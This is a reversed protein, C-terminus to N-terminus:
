AGPPAASPTPTPSYPPEDLLSELEDGVYFAFLYIAGDDEAQVYYASGAPNQAGLYLRRMSGDVLEAEAVIAPPELGYDSLQGADDGLMRQPSPSALVSLITYVRWQDAEEQRPAVLQWLGDDGRLLEVRQGDAAREIRIARIQEEAVNWLPSPPTPWVTASQDGVGAEPAPKKIEVLFVYAALAALVALMILTTRFKM